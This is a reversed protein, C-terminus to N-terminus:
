DTVKTNTSKCIDRCYGGYITDKEYKGRHPVITGDKRIPVQQCCEHCFCSSKDIKSTIPEESM